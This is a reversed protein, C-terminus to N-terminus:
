ESVEFYMLIMQASALFAYKRGLDGSIPLNSLHGSIQMYGFSESGCIPVESLYM